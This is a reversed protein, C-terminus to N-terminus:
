KIPGMYRTPEGWGVGPIFQQILFPEALPDFVFGKDQMGIRICKYPKPVSPKAYISTTRYYLTGMSNKGCSAPEDCRWVYWFVHGPLPDDSGSNYASSPEPLLDSFRKGANDQFSRGIINLDPTRLQGSPNFNRSSFRGGGRAALGLVDILGLPNGGVYGYTNM